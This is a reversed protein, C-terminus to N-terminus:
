KPEPTAFKINLVPKLYPTAGNAVNYTIAADFWLGNSISFECGGNIAGADLADKRNYEAQIYGRCGNSGYFIRAGASWDTKWNNASDKATGLKAGILIQGQDTLPFGASSWFGFKTTGQINKILSDPSSQLLAFGAEWIPANWGSERTSDRLYDIHDHEYKRAIDEIIKQLNSDSQYIERVAVKTINKQKAYVDLASDTFM